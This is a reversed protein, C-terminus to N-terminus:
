DRETSLIVYLKLGERNFPPVFAKEGNEGKPNVYEYPFEIRYRAHETLEM